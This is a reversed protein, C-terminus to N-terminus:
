PREKGWEAVSVPAKQELSRHLALAVALSHLGDEATALPPTGSRVAAQFTYVTYWFPEIMPLPIEEVQNNRQWHLASEAEDHFWHRAILSGRTGYLEVSTPNHGVIFSDHLQITVNSRRTQVQAYLDEPVSPARTESLIQQSSAAYVSGVDEHLLYRLLDIDQTTRDFIVGGGNAQLRWTQAHPPLLTTNSIRGGLVDGIADRILMARMMGIAANARGGYNLVLLLGRSAAAFALSQAEELTLALPPECLVHKGAALAAMVLPFHHRPHSSVYVCQIDRRALLDSLNIYAHPIYNTNAFQAARRENHSFIAAVWAGTMKSTPTIPPQRRLAPIFYEEAVQSAGLLGWGLSQDDLHLAQRGHRCASYLYGLRTLTETVENAQRM